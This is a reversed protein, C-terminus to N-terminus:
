RGGVRGFLRFRHRALWDYAADRFGAPIAAAIPVLWRLAPLRRMLYLVAASGVWRDRGDTVVVSEPAESSLGAEALLSQGRESSAPVFALAGDADAMRAAEASGVCFRCRDDYVVEARRREAPM